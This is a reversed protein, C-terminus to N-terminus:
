CHSEPREGMPVSDWLGQQCVWGGLVGGKIRDGGGGKFGEGSHLAQGVEPQWSGGRRARNGLM